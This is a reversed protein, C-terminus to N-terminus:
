RFRKWIKSRAFIAKSGKVELHEEARLTLNGIDTAVIIGGIGIGNRRSATECWRAPFIVRDPRLAFHPRAIAAPRVLQGADCLRDSWSSTVQPDCVALRASCDSLIIAHRSPTPPLALIDQVVLEM